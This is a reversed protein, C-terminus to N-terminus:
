QQYLFGKYKSETQSRTKKEINSSQFQESLVAIHMNLSGNGDPTRTTHIFLKCILCAEFVSFVSIHNLHARIFKEHTINTQFVKMQRRRSGSTHRGDVHCLHFKRNLQIDLTTTLVDIVVLVYTGDTQAQFILINLQLKLYILYQYCSSKPLNKSFIGSCCEIYLVQHTTNYIFLFFFCVVCLVLILLFVVEVWFVPLSCM